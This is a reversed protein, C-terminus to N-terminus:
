NTKNLRTSSTNVNKYADPKKFKEDDDKNQYIFQKLYEFFSYLYSNEKITQQTMETYNTSLYLKYYKMIKIGFYILLPSQSFM